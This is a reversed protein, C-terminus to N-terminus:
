GHIAAAVIICVGLIFFGAVIAAAINQKQLIEEALKGPTLWDFLKFAVIALVIGLSAFLTANVAGEILKQPHLEQAILLWSAAFM